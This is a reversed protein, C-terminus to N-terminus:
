LTISNGKVIEVKAIHFLMCANSYDISGKELSRIFGSGNEKTITKLFSYETNRTITTITM